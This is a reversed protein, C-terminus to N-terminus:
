VLRGTYGECRGLITHLCLRATGVRLRLLNLFGRVAPRIVAATFEWRNQHLRIVRGTGRAYERTKRLYIAPSLDAGAEEFVTIRPSYGLLAGNNLARWLLETGEGSQWPTPCGVGLETNFVGYTEFVEQRFFCAAEVAHTWISRRGLTLPQSGFRVRSPKMDGPTVLRGSVMMCGTMIEEVANAVTNPAYWCDDDPFAVIDCPPLAALGDNRGQSLGGRSPVVTLPLRSAWAEAVSTTEMTSSQDAVVLTNVPFTQAELSAFLRQLSTPRGITSVVIGVRPKSETWSHQRTTDPM